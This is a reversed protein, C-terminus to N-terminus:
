CSDFSSSDTRLPIIEPLEDNHFSFAVGNFDGLIVCIFGTFDM